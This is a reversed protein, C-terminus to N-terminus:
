EAAKEEAAKAKAKKPKVRAIVLTNGAVMTKFWKGRARAWEPVAQQITAADVGEPPIVSFSEGIELKDAEEAFYQVRSGGRPQKVGVAELVEVRATLEALLTKLKEIEGQM